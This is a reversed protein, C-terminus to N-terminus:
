TCATGQQSLLLTLAEIREQMIMNEESLKANETRLTVLEDREEVLRQVCLRWVGVDADSKREIRSL